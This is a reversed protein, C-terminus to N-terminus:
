YSAMKVKNLALPRTWSIDHVAKEEFHFPPSLQLYSDLDTSRLGLTSQEGWIKSPERLCLTQPPLLIQQKPTTEGPTARGLITMRIFYNTREDLTLSCTYARGICNITPQSNAVWSWDWARTQERRVLSRVLLGEIRRANGDLFPPSYGCCWSKAISSYSGELKKQEYSFFLGIGFPRTLWEIFVRCALWGLKLALAESQHRDEYNHLM